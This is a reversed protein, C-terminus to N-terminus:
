RPLRLLREALRVLDGCFVQTGPAKRWRVADHDAVTASALVRALDAAFIGAAKSEADHIAADLDAGGLVCAAWIDALDKPEDRDLAATVKNALLNQLSDLRGLVPHERIAGIHAPVDDILEVKLELDQERVVLRVFREERLAVDLTSRPERGLAHILRQAALGFQPDDNVFLDIDDSFRHAFYGRSLATGGSLYFAPAVDNAVALVRDQLPYLRKEYWATDM